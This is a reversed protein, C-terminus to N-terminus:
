TVRIRPDIFGYLIDVVFQSFVLFSGYVITLGSIMPYDLNQVSMVYHKGMGPIAFINEIVFTGTLLGAVTMGLITVVPLIANRIQHKVTIQFQSLGKAQANRIYDMGVVDLMSTRMLRALTATTGLSLAFTPLVSHMATTYQAVPFWGLRFALFFQLLNAIIFSPVSVGVIAILMTLGDWVTDKYLAAIIGLFIGSITATVLARTGLDISYPFSDNIIKNVTRGQYRLSYGLDGKVLNQIYLGYQELVPKDLGYYTLMRLRIDDPVRDDSFPDGPLLRVLVFVITALVLITVISILMRRIIYNIM